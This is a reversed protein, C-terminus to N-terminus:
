EDDIPGFDFGDRLDYWVMVGLIALVCLAFGAFVGVALGLWFPASTM